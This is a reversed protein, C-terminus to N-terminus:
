RVLGHEWAWVAIEVRNRAALKTRVNSVHTEVTSLTVVLEAAIEANTRGRGPLRVVDRERPSLEGPPGAGVRDRPGAREPAATM